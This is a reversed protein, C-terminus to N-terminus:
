RRPSGSSRRSVIPPEKSLRDASQVTVDASQLLGVGGADRYSVAYVVRTIGANVILMACALCPAVTTYLTAGDLAVGNRAAFAVANAEAHVATRCTLAVPTDDISLEHVQHDCHPLGRPAGNYGTTCVRGDLAVVCGVSARSCTSRLAMLRATELLVADMSPRYNM